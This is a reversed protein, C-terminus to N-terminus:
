HTWTRDDLYGGSLAVLREYEGRFTKTRHYIKQQRIFKFVNGYQSPSCTIAVYNESWATFKEFDSILRLQTRTETMLLEVFSAVSMTQPLGVLLHVHEVSGNAIFLKAGIKDVSKSFVWLLKKQNGCLTPTNAHTRLVIHFLLCCAPM